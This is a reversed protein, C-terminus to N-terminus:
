DDTWSLIVTDIGEPHLDKGGIAVFGNSMIPYIKAIYMNVASCTHLNGSNHFIVRSGDSQFGIKRHIRSNLLNHPMDQVKQSYFLYLTHKQHKGQSAEKKGEM